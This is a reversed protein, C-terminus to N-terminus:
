EDRLSRIHINVEKQTKFSRCHKGAGIMELLNTKKKKRPQITQPELIIKGNEARAELTDGESIGVERRVTAPITIQCKQKVKVYPM